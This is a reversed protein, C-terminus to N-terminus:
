GKINYSGKFVFQAPGIMEVRDNQWYIELKGGELEVVVPNKLINKKIGIVASACAGTGCALTEGAGREWVRVKIKHENVVKVFEVNTQEPFIKHESIYKGWHAIDIKNLNDTFIVTHPNGMSVSNIMFEHDNVELPFNMVKRKNDGICIPINEPKFDAKGMNVSIKSKYKNFEIFKSKIIGAKTIINIKEKQVKNKRRLYHAFCRIGNGCMEAETGDANFIRMKYDINKREGGYSLILGDAGIGFHRRCVNKALQSLNINKLRGGATIIFDNGCGHMKYFYMLM